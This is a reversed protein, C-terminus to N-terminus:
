RVPTDEAGSTSISLREVELRLGKWYKKNVVESRASISLVRIM